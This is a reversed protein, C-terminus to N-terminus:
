LTVSHKYVNYKWNLIVTAIEFRATSHAQIFYETAPDSPHKADKSLIVEFGVLKHLLTSDKRLYIRGDETVIDSICTLYYDAFM